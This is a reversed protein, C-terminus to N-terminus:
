QYPWIPFRCLAQLLILLSADGGTVQNSSKPFRCLAQLLILLSADGGTVQNSSKPGTPKLETEPLLHHRTDAVVLRSKWKIFDDLM